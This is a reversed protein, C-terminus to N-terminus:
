GLAARIHRVLVDPDSLNPIHGRSPMIELRSGPIHEHVYRGVDPGAINDQASQLIVTPVTVDALDRRNDSLFTARAFQSAVTPDVARISDAMDATLDPRSPDGILVPALSNSFSVYNSELSTLLDDIAEQTFGGPYDVDDIYRPSPGVLVLLSFLDPRRNAALVGIMGSVSHGVFVADTLGLHEVIEVVDDAYGHLSDYKVRDYADPDSAGAGVHDFLIVRSDAEFAPAVHRWSEQSGGFGHSFLIPRGDPRGSIRVANRVEPDIRTVM